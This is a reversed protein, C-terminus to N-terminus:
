WLFRAIFLVQGFNIMNFKTETLSFIMSGNLAITYIEM